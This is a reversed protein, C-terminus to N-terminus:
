NLNINLTSKNFVKDFVEIRLKIPGSVSKDSFDCTITNAKADYEAIHWVENVYVHYDGIGSLNDTALVRIM